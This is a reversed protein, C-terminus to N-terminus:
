YAYPMESQLEAIRNIIRAYGSPTYYVTSTPASEMTALTNRLADIEREWAGFEAALSARYAAVAPSLNETNTM